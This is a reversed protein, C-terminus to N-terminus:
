SQNYAGGDAEMSAIAADYERLAKQANGRNNFAQAHDPKIAIAADFSDIAAQYRQLSALANGRNFCAEALGPAAPAAPAATKSAPKQAPKSAQAFVGLPALATIM